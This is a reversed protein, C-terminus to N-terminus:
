VIKIASSVFEMLQNKLYNDYITSMKVSLVSRMQFVILVAKCKVSKVFQNLKIIKTHQSMFDMKVNKAYTKM